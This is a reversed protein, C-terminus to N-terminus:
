ALPARILTFTGPSGENLFVLGYMDTRPATFDFVIPDNIGATAGKLSQARSQIWTTPDAQDSGMVYLSGQMYQGPILTFRYTKGAQMLTDRVAAIGDGMPIGYSGDLVIGSGQVQQVQYDYYKYPSSVRPYYYAPQRHNSDVTLFEVATTGYASTGLLQSQAKNAFLQLTTDLSYADDVALVSWRPSTSTYSYRHGNPGPASRFITKGDKLVKIKAQEGVSLVDTEASAPATGALLALTTGVGIVIATSKSRLM